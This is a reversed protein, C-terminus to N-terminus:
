FTTETLLSCYNRQEAILDSVDRLSFPCLHLKDCRRDTCGGTEGAQHCFQLPVDLKVTVKSIKKQRTQSVM